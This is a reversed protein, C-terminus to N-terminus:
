LYSLIVNTNWSSLFRLNVKCNDELERLAIHGYPMFGFLVTKLTSTLIYKIHGIINLSIQNLYKKLDIEEMFQDFVLLLNCIDLYDSIFIPLVTQKTKSHIITLTKM